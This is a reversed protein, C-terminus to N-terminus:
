MTPDYNLRTGGFVKRLYSRLAKKEHVVKLTYDDPEIGAANMRDILEYARSYDKTSLEMLNLLRSIKSWDPPDAKGYGDVLIKFTVEDPDMYSDEKFMQQFVKMAMAMNGKRAFVDILSTVVQTDPMVGVNAMESLVGLAEEPSRKGASKIRRMAAQRAEREYKEDDTEMPVESSRLPKMRAAYRARGFSGVFGRRALFSTTSQCTSGKMQGFPAAMILSLSIALSGALRVM